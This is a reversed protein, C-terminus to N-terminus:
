PKTFNNKCVLGLIQEPLSKIIFTKGAIQVEEEEYEIEDDSDSFLILQEDDNVNAMTKKYQVTKCQTHLYIYVICIYM